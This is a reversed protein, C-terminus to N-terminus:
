SRNNQIAIDYGFCEVGFTGVGEVNLFSTPTRVAEASVVLGLHDVPSLRHSVCRLVLVLVSIVDDGWTHRVYGVASEGDLLWVYM